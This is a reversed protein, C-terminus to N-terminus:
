NLDIDAVKKGKKDIIIWEQKKTQVIALGESFDSSNLYILPIVVKLNEDVYGDYKKKYVRRLGDSFYSNDPIEYKLGKGKRDIYYSVRSTRRPSYRTTVKQMGGIIPGYTTTTGGTHVVDEILAIGHNFPEAYLYKFPIVENGNKDVYGYKGGKKAPVPDKPNFSPEHYKEGMGETPIVSQGEKNIYLYIGNLRVRAMGGSFNEAYDYYYPIVLEGTKDIFGCKGNLGVAALGESFNGAHVYKCPIIFEGTKDIFGCKGNLGVVALGESFNLVYKYRCPIVLEGTKDIFGWSGNLEVAALGESFNKADVYKYPIVLEGTKDIFGWSRNLKVAALGGSFNWTANYTCPIVLEGTEDIYGWKSNLEVAALGESFNKAADYKCTIIEKLTEDIYGWKSNLEVRALGESLSEVYFYDPLSMVNKKTKDILVWSRNEKQALDLDDSFKKDSIFYDSVRKGTKDIFCHSKNGKSDSMNVQAFGKRFPQASSIHKQANVSASILLLILLILNIKKM